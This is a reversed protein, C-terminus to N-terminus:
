KLGLANTISLIRVKSQNKVGNQILQTKHFNTIHYIFTKFIPNSLSIWHNLGDM